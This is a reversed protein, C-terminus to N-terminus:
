NDFVALSMNVHRISGGARVRRVSAARASDSVLTPCNEPSMYGRAWLAADAQQFDISRPLKSAWRARCPVPNRARPFSNRPMTIAALLRFSRPLRSPVGAADTPSESLRMTSFTLVLAFGAPPSRFCTLLAPVLINKRFYPRMVRSINPLGPAASQYKERLYSTSDVSLRFSTVFHHVYFM